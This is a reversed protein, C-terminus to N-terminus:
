SSLKGDSWLLAINISSLDDSTLARALMECFARERWVLDTTRSYSYVNREGPVFGV